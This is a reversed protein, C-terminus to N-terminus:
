LAKLLIDEVSTEHESGDASRSVALRRGPELPDCKIAVLDSGAPYALRVAIGNLIVGHPSVILSDSLRFPILPLEMDLDMYDLLFRIANANDQPLTYRRSVVEGSGNLVVEWRMYPENKGFSIVLDAYDVAEESFFREAASVICDLILDDETCHITYAYVVEDDTEKLRRLESPRGADLMSPTLLVEGAHEDLPAEVKGTM